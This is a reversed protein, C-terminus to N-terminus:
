VWLSPRAGERGLNSGFLGFGFPCCVFTQDRSPARKILRWTWLGLVLYRLSNLFFIGNRTELSRPQVLRACLVSLLMDARPVRVLVSGSPSKRGSFTKWGPGVEEWLTTPSWSSTGWLPTSSCGAVSSPSLAPPVSLESQLGVTCLLWWRGM